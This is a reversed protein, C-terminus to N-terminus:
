YHICVLLSWELLRLQGSRHKWMGADGSLWFQDQQVDLGDWGALFPPQGEVDGRGGVAPEEVRATVQANPEIHLCLFTPTSKHKGLNTNFDPKLSQM